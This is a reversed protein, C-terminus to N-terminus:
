GLGCRCAWARPRGRGGGGKGAFAKMVGGGQRMKLRHRPRAAGDARTAASRIAGASRLALARPWADALAAVAWLGEGHLRPRDERAAADRKRLPGPRRVRRAAAPLPSGAARKMAEKGGRAPGRPEHRVAKAPSRHAPAPKGPPEARAAPHDLPVPREDAAVAADPRRPPLLPRGRARPGLLARGNGRCLVLPRGRARPTGATVPVFGSRASLAGGRARPGLMFM